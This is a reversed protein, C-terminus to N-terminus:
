QPTCVQGVDAGYIELAIDRPFCAFTEDKLKLCCGSPCDSPQSCSSFCTSTALGGESSAASMCHGSLGSAACCEADTSCGTEFEPLTCQEPKCAAQPACTGDNTGAGACCGTDCDNHTQCREFCVSFGSIDQGKANSVAHCAGNSGCDADSNCFSRCAYGQDGGICSHRAPCDETASCSAYPLAQGPVECSFIPDTPVSTDIVTCAKGSACGCQTVLDCSNGPVSSVCAPGSDVSAEVGADAPGGDAGVAADFGADSTTVRPGADRADGADATRACTRPQWRLEDGPKSIEFALDPTTIPQCSGPCQGAHPEGYCTQGRTSCPNDVCTRSLFVPLAISQGTRFRMRLAHEVLPGSSKEGLGRVVLLLEDHQQQDIVIPRQLDFQSLTWEAAPRNVDRDLDADAPYARVAVSTLEPVDSKVTLVIATVAADPEGCAAALLMAPVLLTCWSRLSSVARVSM